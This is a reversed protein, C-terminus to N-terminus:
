NRDLNKRFPKSSLLRYSITRKHPADRCKWVPDAEYTFTKVGYGHRKMERAYFAQVDKVIRDAQADIGSQPVQDNPYFYALQVKPQRSDQQQVQSIATQLEVAESLLLPSNWLHITGDTGTSALMEGDPSFAVSRTGYVNGTRTAIAHGTTANWLRLTGNARARLHAAMPLFRLQFCRM